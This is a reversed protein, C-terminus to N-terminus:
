RDKMYEDYAERLDSICVDGKRACDREAAGYPVGDLEAAILAYLAYTVRRDYEEETM